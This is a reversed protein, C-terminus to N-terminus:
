KEELEYVINAYRGQHLRWKVGDYSPVFGRYWLDVLCQFPYEGEKQEVYKWKKINPFLSGIYAGASTWVSAGVSDAVSDGVSDFVSDGVSDEVSDAVSDGVSDFVSTRVSDGVSDAVSIWKKLNDIDKQTVRNRPNADTLPDFPFLAECLKYGCKEEEAKALTRIEDISLERILKIYEYRQKFMDFARSKGKVKAEFVRRDKRYAYTLGEVPTVYFGRSCQTGSEDFDSCHYWKDTEFKFGQFPSTMDSKLVKFKMEGGINTSSGLISSPDQLRRFTQL